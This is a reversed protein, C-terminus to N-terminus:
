GFQETLAAEEMRHLAKNSLVEVRLWFEANAAELSASVQEEDLFQALAQVRDWYHQLTDTADEHLLRMQELTYSLNNERLLKTVREGVFFEPSGKYSNEYMLAYMRAIQEKNM